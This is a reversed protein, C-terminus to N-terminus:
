DYDSSWSNLADEFEGEFVQPSFKEIWDQVVQFKESSCDFSLSQTTFLYSFHFYGRDIKYEFDPIADLIEKIRPRLYNQAEEDSLTSRLLRKLLPQMIDAAVRLDGESNIWFASIATALQVLLETTPASTRAIATFIEQVERDHRLLHEWKETPFFRVSCKQLLAPKTAKLRDALTRDSVVLAIGKAREGSVTQQHGFDFAITGKTGRGWYVSKSDKLQWCEHTDDNDLRVLDDVFFNQCPSQFKSSKNHLLYQYLAEAIKATAFKNEFTHGKSFNQGGLHKRKLYATRESEHLTELEFNGDQQSM